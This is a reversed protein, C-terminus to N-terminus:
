SWRPHFDYTSSPLENIAIAPPRFGYDKLMASDVFHNSIKDGFDSRSIYQVLEDLYFSPCYRKSYEESSVNGKALGISKPFFIETTIDLPFRERLALLLPTNGSHKIGSVLQCMFKYARSRIDGRGPLDGDCQGLMRLIVGANLASTLGTDSTVPSHKLFQLHHYTPCVDCSVIYGVDHAAQSILAPMDACLLRQRRSVRSFISHAIVTSAINNLMTTLVSGSYEIPHIPKLRRKEKLNAPNNVRLVSRCQSTCRKIIQQFRPTSSFLGELINFITSGNSADCSSIDV